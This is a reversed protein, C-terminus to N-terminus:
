EEIMLNELQTLLKTKQDSEDAESVIVYITKLDLGPKFPNKIKIGRNLMAVLGRAHRESPDTWNAMEVEFIDM